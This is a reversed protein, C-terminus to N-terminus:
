EKFYALLVKVYKTPKECHGFWRCFFPAVDWWSSTNDLYLWTVM